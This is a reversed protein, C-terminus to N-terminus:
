DDRRSRAAAFAEEEIEQDRLQLLVVREGEDEVQAAAVVVEGMEEVAAVCREAGPQSARQEMLGNQRGGM